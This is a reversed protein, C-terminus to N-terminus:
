WADGGGVGLDGLDLDVRQEDARVAREGEVGAGYQGSVGGGGATGSSVM